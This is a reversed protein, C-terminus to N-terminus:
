NLLVIVTNAAQNYLSRALIIKKANCFCVRDTHLSFGGVWKLIHRMPMYLVTIIMIWVLSTCIYSCFIWEQIWHVMNVATIKGKLFCTKWCTVSLSFFSLWFGLYEQHWSFCKPCKFLNLRNANFTSKLQAIRKQKQTYKKISKEM